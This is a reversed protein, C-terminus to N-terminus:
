RKEGYRASIWKLGEVLRDIDEETNCFSLSVRCVGEINMARMLSYSCCSGTRICVGRGALMTGVDYCGLNKVSFSVIPSPRSNIVRIFGLQELSSFLYDSLEEEVQKREADHLIQYNIAAKLGVIGAINPSGAEFGPIGKRASYDTEVAGGGLELPVLFAQANKGAYLIGVGQPGYIKHGSLCLFDCGIERVDVREHVALQAADIVSLVGHKKAYRCIVSIEPKFGTVNSMGSVSVVLTEGDILDMVSKPDLNGDPDVEAVRLEIESRRCCDLWPAYNSSHELETIVINGKLGRRMFSSSVMNLAETCGKTFIIEDSDSNIFSAVASRSDSIMKSAASSLPYLSRGTNCNQETMFRTVSDIVALPKQTTAANDLYVLNPNSSFFPFDSRLSYKM